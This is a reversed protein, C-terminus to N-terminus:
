FWADQRLQPTFLGARAPKATNDAPVSVDKYSVTVGTTSGSANWTGGATYLGGSAGDTRYVNCMSAGAAVLGYHGSTTFEVYGTSPTETAAGSTDTTGSGDVHGAATLTVAGGSWAATANGTTGNSQDKASSTAVGTFSFGALYRETSAVTGITVTITTGSALGAPAQASIRATGYGSNVQVQQDTVWTLGGGSTTITPAASLGFWHVGLEIFGGSAVTVNTTGAITTSSTNATVPTFLASQDVAAL